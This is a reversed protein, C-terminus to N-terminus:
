PGPGTIRSISDLAGTLGEMGVLLPKLGYKPVPKWSDRFFPARAGDNDACRVTDNLKEFESDSCM